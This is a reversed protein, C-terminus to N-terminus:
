KGELPVIEGWPVKPTVRVRALLQGDLSVVKDAYLSYLHLPDNNFANSESRVSAWVEKDKRRVHLDRDSFRGCAYEWRTKGADERCEVILIVEPDTGASSVLTFLAGDVVGTKAAPYRYLPTPLLRLDWQKKDEESYSYGTFEQALRRMQLLRAAPTAGPAPGDTLAVRALGARPKWQNDGPRTVVLKDPDLAHFEHVVRRGPRKEDQQSFISGIAAPRGDRLWLFVVGQQVGERTPNSWEFVPDSKLEFAKKPASDVAISYERADRLYAPFMKKALTNGADDAFLVLLLALLSM